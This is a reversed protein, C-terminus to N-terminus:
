RYHPTDPLLYQSEDYEFYRATYDYMEQVDDHTMTMLDLQTALIGNADERMSFDLITDGIDPMDHTVPTLTVKRLAKLAVKATWMFSSRAEAARIEAGDDRRILFKDSISLKWKKDPYLRAYVGSMRHQLECQQMAHDIFESDVTRPRLVHRGDEHRRARILRGNDRLRQREQEYAEETFLKGLAFLQEPTPLNSDAVHGPTVTREIDPYEM